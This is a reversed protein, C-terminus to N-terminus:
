TPFECVPQLAQGATTLDARVRDVTDASPGVDVYTGLARVLDQLAATAAEPARGARLTRILGHLDSRAGTLAQTADFDWPDATLRGLNEPLAAISRSRSLEACWRPVADTATGTMGSMGEASPATRSHGSDCGAAAAIILLLSGM